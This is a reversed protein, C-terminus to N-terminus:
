WSQRPQTESHELPAAACKLVEDVDQFHHQENWDTAAIEAALSGSRRQMVSKRVARFRNPMVSLLM